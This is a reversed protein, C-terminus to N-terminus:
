SSATTGATNPPIRSSFSERCLASWERGIREWAYTDAATRRAAQGLEGLTQRREIASRIATVYSAAAPRCLIGNVLHTIINPTEGVAAAIVVKGAAMAEIEGRGFEKQFSVILLAKAMSNNLRDRSVRGLHEVNPLDRFENEFPGDGFILFRTEPLEHEAKSVLELLLEAGKEAVLRGIFGVHMYPSGDDWMPPPAFEDLDVGAPIVKIKRGDIHFKVMGDRISASQARVRNSVLALAICFARYVVRWCRQVGSLRVPRIYPDIWPITNGESYIVRGGAALFALTPVLGSIPNHVILLGYGKSKLALIYMATVLSSICLFLALFTMDLMGQPQPNALAPIPLHRVRLRPRIQTETNFNGLFPSLIVVERSKSLEVGIRFDTVEAGGGRSTGTELLSPGVIM